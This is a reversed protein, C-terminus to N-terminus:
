KRKGGKVHSKESQKLEIRTKATEKLWFFISLILFVLSLLHCFVFEEISGFMVMPGSWATILFVSSFILAWEWTKLM